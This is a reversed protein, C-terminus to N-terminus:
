PVIWEESRPTSPAAPGGPGAAPGSCNDADTVVSGERQMHRRRKQRESTLVNTFAHTYPGSLYALVM